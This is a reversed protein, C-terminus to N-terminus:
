VGEIVRLTGFLCGANGASVTCVMALIANWVTELYGAQWSRVWWCGGAGWGFVREVVGRCGGWCGASM